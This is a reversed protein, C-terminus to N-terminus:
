AAMGLVMRRYYHGYFPSVPAAASSPIWATAIMRWSGHSTDYDMVVSTDGAEESCAATVTTQDQAGRATQNAGVAGAYTLFTALLAFIMDNVQGNTYTITPVSTGGNANQQTRCRTTQDVGTYSNAVCARNQTETASYTVVVDATGASVPGEALTSRVVFGANGQNLINLSVANYTIGTVTPDVSNTEQGVGVGLALDSGAGVTVSFTTSAASGGHGHTTTTQHAVAM